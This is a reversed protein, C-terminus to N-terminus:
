AAEDRIEFGPVAPWSGCAPPRLQSVSRMELGLCVGPLVRARSRTALSKEPMQCGQKWGKKWGKKRTRDCEYKRM